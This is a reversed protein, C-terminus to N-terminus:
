KWEAIIFDSLVPISSYDIDYFADKVNIEPAYTELVDAYLYTSANKYFDSFFLNDDDAYAGSAIDYKYIFCVGISCEVRAYDYLEMEFAKEVVEPFQTAFEATAAADKHFYYGKKHMDPDGNSKELYIEFMELTIQGDGGNKRAEMAATLDDIVSQREAKEEATMERILPTGDENYVQNGNEDVVLLEKDRVFLLSVHSYTKLYKECEAPFNALNKGDEGYIVTKAKDAKYLLEAASLFDDYDLGYKEAKSNFLDKSGDAKYYMVEEATAKVSKKDESTYSANSMFIHCASVLTRVYEEFSANYLERQTKGSADTSNWFYESDTASVGSARLTRIYNIKYNASLYRLTGDDVRVRGYYVVAQSNKVAVIIGLVAGFILVVATFICVFTTLFRNKLM